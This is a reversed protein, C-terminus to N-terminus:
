SESAATVRPGLIIPMLRWAVTIGCENNSNGSGCDDAYAMSTGMVVVVLLMFVLKSIPNSKKLTFGEKNITIRTPVHSVAGKSDIVEIDIPVSKM